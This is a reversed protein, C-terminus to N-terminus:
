VKFGKFPMHKPRQLWNGESYKDDSNMIHLTYAHRSRKSTNERSMHPSQTHLVIVSGRSVELPVMDKLDWPTKDYVETATENKDNRLFRSKLKTRHGGPIAWLCGNEITADELAFWLGIVSNNVTHLYTGDQHCTVEGGIYPQKCIYMSQLLLPDRMDLEKALAAIKPTRSFNNFVPDLDHLAHGIKNISQTKEVTLEGKENIAGAEFFFRIAAGSDLFYQHKAHRQDQTSFVTKVNEVDFNDMLRYARAMLHECIDPPVFDRIVLYGDEQYDAKQSSTLIPSFM